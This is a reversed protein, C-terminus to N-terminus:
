SLAIALPWFRLPRSGLFGFADFFDAVAVAANLLGAAGGFGGAFDSLVHHRGAM